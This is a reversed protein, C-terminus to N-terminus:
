ASYGSELDSKSRRLSFMTLKDLWNPPTLDWLENGEKNRNKNKRLRM